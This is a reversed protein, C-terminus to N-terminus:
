NRALPTSRPRVSTTQGVTENASVVRYIRIEQDKGRLSVQGVAQTEFQRDLYRLTTEGILIRCPRNLYDPIFSEKDYSELRSATNVADGHVNYELRQANGMSGAVMSGTFIGIRMGIMPLQQDRLHHNLEILRREMALAANVANFADQQIESENTRALPLGFGAMIADGIFRLIVGGNDVILPTMAEMYENLWDMLAQPEMKESVATFAHLDTFMVTAVLKKSRPRGGLLFEDRQQWIAEALQPSIHRSFLNMLVGRQKKEQNTLYATIIVCSLVWALAPPVL